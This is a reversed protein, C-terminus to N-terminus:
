AAPALDVGVADAPAAVAVPDPPVGDDGHDEAAREGGQDADEGGVEDGREAGGGLAADGLNFALGAASGECLGPLAGEGSGDDVGSDDREGVEEGFVSLAGVGGPGDAEAIAPGVAPVAGELRHAVGREVGAGRGPEGSTLISSSTRRRM